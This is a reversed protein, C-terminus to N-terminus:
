HKLSNISVLLDWLAPLPLVYFLFVFVDVTLRAIGFASSGSLAYPFHNECFRRVLMRPSQILEQQHRSGTHLLHYNCEHKESFYFFSLLRDCMLPSLLATAPNKKM